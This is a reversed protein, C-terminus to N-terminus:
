VTILRANVTAEASTTSLLRQTPSWGLAAILALAALTKIIRRVATGSLKFWPLAPGPAESVPWEQDLLALRERVGLEAGDRTSPTPEKWDQQRKQSRSAQSM